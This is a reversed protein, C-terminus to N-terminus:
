VAEELPETSGTLPIRINIMLGPLSVDNMTYVSSKDPPVQLSQESNFSMQFSESGDENEKVLSHHTGNFSVVTNGSILNMEACDSTDGNKRLTCYDNYISEFTEILTVSGQGRTPDEDGKSSINGQLAAVTFLASSSHYSAHRRVYREAITKIESDDPLTEFNEAISNGLNLVMLELSCDEKDNFYSRVYWVSKTRACHENANDLVEGLCAALRDKAQEKITLKHSNLCKELHEVCDEAVKTKKDEKISITEFYRNDARFFHLNDIHEHEEADKFDPDGLERALGITDVLQAVNQRKPLRGLFEFAREGDDSLEKLRYSVIESALIGLLAESGLSIKRTKLYDVKIEKLEPKLLVERLEFVKRLVYEPNSFIDFTKPIKLIYDTIKRNSKLVRPQGILENCFDADDFYLQQSALSLAMEKELSAKLKRRRKKRKASISNKLHKKLRAKRIVKNPYVKKKM